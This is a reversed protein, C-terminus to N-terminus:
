RGLTLRDLLLAQDPCIPLIRSVFKATFQGGTDPKFCRITFPVAIAVMIKALYRM